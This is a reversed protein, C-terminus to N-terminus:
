TIGIRLLLSVFSFSHKGGIVPPKLSNITYEIQRGLLSTQYLMPNNYHGISDNYNAFGGTSVASMGHCIADFLPMGALYYSFICLLILGYYIATIHIVVSRTNPLKRKTADSYESYLLNNLSLIKFMPFVAIGLTIVGFGGHWTANSEM